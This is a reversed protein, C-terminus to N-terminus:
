HQSPTLAARIRAAIADLEADPVRESKANLQEDKFRPVIHLHAHMVEQGAAKGSNMRINFGEATIGALTIAHVIRKALRMMAATTSDPIDTFSTAHAVPVILVHGPNLAGHSMFAAVTGDRYVVQSQQIEGASIRCFVCKGPQAFSDGALLLLLLAFIVSRKM